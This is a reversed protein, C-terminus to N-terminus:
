GDERRTAEEKLDRAGEDEGPDIRTLDTDDSEVTLLDLEELVDEFAVVVELVDLDERGVLTM